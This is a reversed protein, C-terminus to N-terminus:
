VRGSPSEVPAADRVRLAVGGGVSAGEDYDDYPCPDGVQGDYLGQAPPPGPRIRHTANMANKGAFYEGRRLRGATATCTVGDGSLPDDPPRMAARRSAPAAPPPRRIASPPM